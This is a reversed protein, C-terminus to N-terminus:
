CGFEDAIVNQCDLDFVGSPTRFNLFYRHAHNPRARLLPDLVLKGVVMAQHARGSPAGSIQRDDPCDGIRRAVVLETEPLSGVTLENFETCAEDCDVTIVTSVPGM